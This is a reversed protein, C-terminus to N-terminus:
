RYRGPGRRSVVAFQQSSREGQGRREAVLLDGPIMLMVANPNRVGQTGAASAGVGLIPLEDMTQATVNHSVDGTETNLLPAAENVTVSETAAGVELPIDIRLVQAVQITLNQRVYKKFGAVATSLEYNGPPLQAITYNGTSSSAGEYLAGTDVNRAQIAANAVVAGAPDAVTGTITGRDSQAWAALALVSSLILLKAPQM